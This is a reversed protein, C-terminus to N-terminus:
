DYVETIPIEVSNSVLWSGQIIEGERSPKMPGRTYYKTFEALQRVYM